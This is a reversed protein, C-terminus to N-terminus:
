PVGTPSLTHLDFNTVRMNTEEHQVIVVWDNVIVDLDTRDEYSVRTMLDITISAQLFIDGTGKGVLIFNSANTSTFIDYHDEDDVVDIPHGGSNEVDDNYDIWTEKYWGFMEVMQPILPTPTVGVCTAASDCGAYALIQLFVKADMENDVNDNNNDDEEGYSNWFFDISTTFSTQVIAMTDKGFLNKVTGLDVNYVITDSDSVDTDDDTSEANVNMSLQTAENSYFAQVRPTLTPADSPSETPSSVVALPPTTTTTTAAGKSSKKTSATPNKTTTSGKKKKLFRVDRNNATTPNKAIITLFDNSYASRRTEHQVLEFLRALQVSM